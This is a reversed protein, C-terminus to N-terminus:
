QKFIGEIGKEFVLLLVCDVSILDELLEGLQLSEISTRNLENFFLDDLLLFSFLRFVFPQLGVSHNVLLVLSVLDLGNLGFAFSVPIQSIM